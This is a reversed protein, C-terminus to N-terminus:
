PVGITVGTTRLYPFSISSQFSPLNPIHILCGTHCRVGPMDEDASTLEAVRLSPSLTQISLQPMHQPVYTTIIIGPAHFPALGRTEAHARCPWNQYDIRITDPVMVHIFRQQCANYFFIEFLTCWHFRMYEM